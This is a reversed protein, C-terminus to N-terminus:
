RRSRGRRGIAIRELGVRAALSKEPRLDHYQLDMAALRADDWRLGHRERYGDILRHKAVWDVQGPWRRRTPRWGPSCRGGLAAAGRPRGGRRRHLRPRAGRRVEPGPRLLEWQAELATISSGDALEIPRALTTDYSVHRLAQVPKAPLLDRTLWDDEIM